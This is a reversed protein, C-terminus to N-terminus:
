CYLKNEKIYAAVKPPVLYDIPMNEKIRNRIETASIEIVPTEVFEAMHYYKNEPLFTDAEVRRKMVVVKALEFIEDPEKWTHFKFINDYGIILEIDNYTKKLERLTEVTYSIDEKDIEISSVEFYPAGEVALKLMDYRREGSSSPSNIKHPSIFCPIFIVKDLGRLERVAQATILHGIHVPDFTGGFVGIKM